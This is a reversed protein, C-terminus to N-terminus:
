ELFGTQCLCPLTIRCHIIDMNICILPAQTTHVCSILMAQRGAQSSSSSSGGKFHCVWGRGEGLSVSIVSCGSLLLLFFVLRSTHILRTLFKLFLFFLFPPFAQGLDNM